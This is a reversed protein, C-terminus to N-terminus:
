RNLERRFFAAVRSIAEGRQETVMHGAGAYLALEHPIGREKFAEALWEAQRVPVRDDAQGHLILWPMNPPLEDVFSLASRDYLVADNGPGYGPVLERLLSDMRPNFRVLDHFETPAGLVAGARVNPYDERAALLSMMGGRSAGYLGVRRANVRPYNPLERLLRHLYELDRDGGLHDAWRDLNSRGIEYTLVAFGEAALPGLVSAVSGPNWRPGAYTGPRSYVITPFPGEGAPLAAYGKVERQGVFYTFEEYTVPVEGPEPVANFAVLPRPTSLTTQTQDQCAPLLLIALPLLFSPLKLM